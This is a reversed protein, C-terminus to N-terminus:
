PNFRWLASPLLDSGAWQRRHRGLLLYIKIGLSFLFPFEFSSPYSIGPLPYWTTTWSLLFATGARTETYPAQSSTLPPQHKLCMTCEKQMQTPWYLALLLKPWKGFPFSALRSLILCTGTQTRKWLKRELYDIVVDWSFFSGLRFILLATHPHKWHHTHFEIKKM